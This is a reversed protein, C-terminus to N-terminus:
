FARPPRGFMSDIALQYLAEESPGNIGAMSNALQDLGIAQEQLRIAERRMNAARERLLAIASQRQACCDASKAGLTNVENDRM